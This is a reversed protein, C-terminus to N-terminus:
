KDREAIAKAGFGAGTLAAAGGVGYAAKKRAGSVQDDLKDMKKTFKDKKKLNKVTDQLEVKARSRSTESQRQTKADDMKRDRGWFKTSKKKGSEVAEVAHVKARGRAEGAKKGYTDAGGELIKRERGRGMVNGAFTKADSAYGKAAGGAKSAAGKIAEGASSASERFTAEKALELNNTFRSM